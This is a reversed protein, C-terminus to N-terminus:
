FNFHGEIINFNKIDFFRIHLKKDMEIFDFSDIKVDNIKPYILYVENCNYRMAYAFMQYLDSQSIDKKHYIKLIM